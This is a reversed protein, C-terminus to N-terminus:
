KKGAVAAKFVSSASFSPYNTKPIKLPAGTQPNRGERAARTKRAFTGFKSIAVKDGKSVASGIVDFCAGLVRGVNVKTEGTSAAVADILTKKNM